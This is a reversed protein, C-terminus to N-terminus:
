TGIKSKKGARREIEMVQKFVEIVAEYLEPPIADNVDVVRYIERALPPNEVIEIDNERAIGKIKIALYDIGKAVLVPVKIGEAEEKKYRIAVAYHTPNTIVVSASPIASLMKNQAMKMMNQRIKAKIEPNGDFQKAEEKLEQKSMKLSKTYQYKKIMFDIVALIFFVFLLSSALIILQTKLFKAQGLLPLMAVSDLRRATFYLVTLGVGFAIAVKLTILAGDILKKMSIVNKIGKIPNIKGLNFKVAKPAFLFGFQGLNGILAAIILAIFMPIVLLIVEIAIKIALSTINAVSFPMDLHGLIEIYIAEFGHLWYTFLAFILLLAVTLGVFGTLEPSKAVNGEERAKRIKEPSPAENKEEDAM